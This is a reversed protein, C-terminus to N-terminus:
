ASARGNSSMLIRPSSLDLGAMIGPFTLLPLIGVKAVSADFNMWYHGLFYLNEIGDQFHSPTLYEKAMQKVLNCALAVAQDKVFRHAPTM